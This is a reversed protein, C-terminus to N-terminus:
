ALSSNWYFPFYQSIFIMEIAIIINFVETENEM